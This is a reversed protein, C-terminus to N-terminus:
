AALELALWRKTPGDHSTKERVVEVDQDHKLKYVQAIFWPVQRELSELTPARVFLEPMEPSTAVLLDHREYRVDVTIPRGERIKASTAM